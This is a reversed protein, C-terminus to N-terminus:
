ASKTGGPDAPPTASKAATGTGAVTATANATASKPTNPGAAYGVISLVVMLLVAGTAFLESEAGFGLKTMLGSVMGYIGTVDVTKIAESVGDTLRQVDDSNGLLSLVFESM